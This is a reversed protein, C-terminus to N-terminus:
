RQCRMAVPRGGNLLSRLPRKSGRMLGDRASTLVVGTARVRARECSGANALVEGVQRDVPGERQLRDLPSPVPPADRQGYLWKRLRFLSIEDRGADHNAKKTATISAQLSRSNKAVATIGM